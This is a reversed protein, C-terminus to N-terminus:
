LRGAGTSIGVANRSLRESGAGLNPLSKALLKLNGLLCQDKDMNSAKIGNLVM